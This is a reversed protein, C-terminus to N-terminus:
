VATARPVSTSLGLFRAFLTVTSHSRTEPHDRCHGHCIFKAPPLYLGDPTDCRAVPDEEGEAYSLGPRSPTAQSQPQRATLSMRGTPNKARLGGDVFESCPPSAAVDRNTVHARRRQGSRVRAM